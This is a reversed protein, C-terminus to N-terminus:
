FLRRAGAWLLEMGVAGACDAALDLPSFGYGPGGRREALAEVVQLAEYAAGIACTLAVRKVATDRWAPAVWPGRLAVDVVAGAAVHLGKDLCTVCRDPDLWQAGLVAPWLMLAAVLMKM